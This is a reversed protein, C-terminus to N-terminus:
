TLKKYTVEHIDYKECVTHYEIIDGKRLLYYLWTLEGDMNYVSGAHQYINGETMMYKLAKQWHHISLTRILRPPRTYDFETEM